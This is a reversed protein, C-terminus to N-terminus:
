PKLRAASASLLTRAHGGVGHPVLAGAADLDLLADISRVLMANDGNFEDDFSRDRVEYCDGMFRREYWQLWITTDGIKVPLFAFRHRWGDRADINSWRM